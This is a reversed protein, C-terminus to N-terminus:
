LLDNLLLFSNDVPSEQKQLRILESTNFKSVDQQKYETMWKIYKSDPYENSASVLM